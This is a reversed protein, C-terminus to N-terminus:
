LLKGMFKSAEPGCNQKKWRSAVSDICVMVSRQVGFLGEYDWHRCLLSSRRPRSAVVDLADHM